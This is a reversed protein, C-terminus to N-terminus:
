SSPEKLLGQIRKGIEETLAGVAKRPELGHEECFTRTQIPEGFAISADCPGPYQGKGLIDEELKLITEALRETSPNGSLYRGPYSYAQIAVFLRDLRDYLKRAEAPDSIPHEEDIIRKRIINRLRKVREPVNGGSSEQEQEKEVQEVLGESLRQLRAPLDDNYTQGLHEQEKLAVLGKGLRYIREVLEMDPRPKWTIREEIRSLRAPFSDRISEDYRYRIGAPFVYSERGAKLIKDSARLFITSTGENLLDLEEHHHYIEGEPFIVLPHKAEELIKMAMKIAAIDAGERDVSFAGANQLFWRTIQGKQFGERAAMFNFAMPYPRSAYMLLHPDPHDAHNPTVMISHGRRHLEVVKNMGSVTVSRVKFVKKLMVECSFWKMFPGVAFPKYAPPYFVYPKQPRLINM